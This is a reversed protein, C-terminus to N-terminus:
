FEGSQGSHVPSDPSGVASAGVTPLAIIPRCTALALPWLVTGSQGTHVPSHGTHWPSRLSLPRSWWFLFSILCQEHGTCWDVSPLFQRGFPSGVAGLQRPALFPVGLRMSWLVLGGNFMRLRRSEALVCGSWQSQSKLVQRTTFKNRQTKHARIKVQTRSMTAIRAKAHTEKGGKSKHNENHDVKYPHSVGVQPSEECPFCQSYPLFGHIWTSWQIEQFPNLAVRTWKSAVVHFYALTISPRVVVYFDNHWRHKNKHSRVSV